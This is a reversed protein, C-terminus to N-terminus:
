SSKHDFMEINCIFNSTIRFFVESGSFPVPTHVYVLESSSRAAPFTATFLPFNQKVVERWGDIWRDAVTYTERPCVKLPM